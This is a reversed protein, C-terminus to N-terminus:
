YLYECRGFYLGSMTQRPGGVHSAAPQRAVYRQDKPEREIDRSNEEDIKRKAQLLIIIMTRDSM